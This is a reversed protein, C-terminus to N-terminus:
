APTLDIAFICDPSSSFSIAFTGNSTTYPTVFDILCIADKTAGDWYILGGMASTLTTSAVSVNDADWLLSGSSVSFATNQLAVGGSPWESGSSDVVENANYPASGYVTDTDFNPTISDSFLAIKIGSTTTVMDLAIDNGLAKSITTYYLGSATIAM